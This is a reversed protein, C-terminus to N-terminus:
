CYYELIWKQKVSDIHGRYKFPRIQNNFLQLRPQNDNPRREIVRTNNIKIEYDNSM